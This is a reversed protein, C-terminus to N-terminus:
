EESAEQAEGNLREAERAAEDYTDHWSVIRVGQFRRREHVVARAGAYAPTYTTVTM